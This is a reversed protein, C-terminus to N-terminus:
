ILCGGKRLSDFWRVFTNIKKAHAFFYQNKKCNKKRTKQPNKM